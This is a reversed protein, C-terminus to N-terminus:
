YDRVNFIENSFFNSYNYEKFRFSINIAFISNVNLGNKKAPIFKNNLSIQNLTQKIYSEYYSDNTYTCNGSELISGTKNVIFYIVISSGYNSFDPLTENFNKFFVNSFDGIFKPLSDFNLFYKEKDILMYKKKNVEYVRKKNIIIKSNKKKEFEIWYTNKNPAKCKLVFTNFFSSDNMQKNQSSNLVRTVEKYSQQNIDHNNSWFFFLYFLYYM